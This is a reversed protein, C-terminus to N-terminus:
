KQIGSHELPFSSSAFSQHLNQHGLGTRGPSCQTDLIAPVTAMSHTVVWLIKTRKTVRSLKHINNDNHTVIDSYVYIYIYVICHIVCDSTMLYYMM